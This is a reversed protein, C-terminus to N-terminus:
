ADVGPLRSLESALLHNWWDPIGPLYYHLCDHGRHGDPRVLTMPYTNVVSVSVFKDRVARQAFAKAVIANYESFLHWGYDMKSVRVQTEDPSPGSALWCTGHGPVTTRWIIRDKRGGMKPSVAAELIFRHFKDFDTAFWATTNQHAGMNVLLLTSGTEAKWSSAWDFCIDQCLPGRTVKMETLHDNRVYLLRVEQTGPNNPTGPCPVSGRAHRLNDPTGPELPEGPLDLLRWLSQFAMLSISDGVMILSSLQLRSMERCFTARTMRSLPCQKLKPVWEWMVNERYPQRATARFERDADGAQEQLKYTLPTTNRAVDALRVWSGFSYEQNGCSDNATTMSAKSLSPAVRTTSATSTSPAADRTRVKSLFMGNDPHPGAFTKQDANLQAPLQGMPKNNTNLGHSMLTGLAASFVAMTVVLCRIRSTLEYQAAGVAPGGKEPMFERLSCAKGILNQSEGDDDHNNNNNYCSVLNQNEGDEGQEEKPAGVVQVLENAM